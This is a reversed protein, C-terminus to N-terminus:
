SAPHLHRAIIWDHLHTAGEPDVYYRYGTSLANRRSAVEAQEADADQSGGENVSIRLDYEAADGSVAAAHLLIYLWRSSPQQLRVSLEGDEASVNSMGDRLYDIPTKVVTSPVNGPLVGLEVSASKTM